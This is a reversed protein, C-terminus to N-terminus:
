ACKMLSRMVACPTVFQSSAALHVIDVLHPSIDITPQPVTTALPTACCASFWLVISQAHVKLKMASIGNSRITEFDALPTRKILGNKTLMVLFDDTKFKSVSLLAAISDSKKLPLVQLLHASLKFWLSALQVPIACCEYCTASQLLRTM